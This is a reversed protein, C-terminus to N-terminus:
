SSRTPGVALWWPTLRSKPVEEDRRRMVSVLGRQHCYFGALHDAPHRLLIIAKTGTVKQFRDTHYSVPAHNKFVGGRPFWKPTDNSLPLFENAPVGRSKDSNARGNPEQMASAILWM